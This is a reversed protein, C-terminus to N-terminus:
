EEGKKNFVEQHHPYTKIDYEAATEEIPKGDLLEQKDTFKM